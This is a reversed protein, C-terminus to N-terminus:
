KMILIDGAAINKYSITGEALEVVMYAKKVGGHMKWPQLGEKIQVVEYNMNLFVVDIPFNMFCTHISKCNMLMLAESKGLSKRGILGKLRKFFSDAIIIKEAVINNRSINYLM